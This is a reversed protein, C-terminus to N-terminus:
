FIRKDYPFSGIILFMDTGTIGRCIYDQIESNSVSRVSRFGVQGAYSIGCIIVVM